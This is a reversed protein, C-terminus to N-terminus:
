KIRRGGEFKMEIVESLTDDIMKQYDPFINKEIGSLQEHDSVTKPHRSILSCCDKYEEISDEFTGIQKAMKVIDNKSYTLLPRFVPLDTAHSLSVINPLTQSAVQGLSDGNVIAQAHIKNGLQEAVRAMFRRFIVLDYPVKHGLLAIDFYTYPVLYLRSRLTHNSLHQAIRTVKYSDAEDQQMSTATFHIFDVSCGRGAILYVAVPSDIGGSLLAIVKGATGVPLGGPGREKRSFIYYSDAQFEAYFTEDPNTLDVKDWDTNTIIAHGLQGEIQISNFPLSKVARKVRVCFTKGPSFRKKALEIFHNELQATDSEHSEGIFDQHPVKKASTLWAVGFIERVKQFIAESSSEYKDPIVVYLYGRTEYVPCDFGINKLMFRINEKLKKRFVPQNKGKLGIESDYHILITNSYNQSSSLVSIFKTNKSNSIYRNKM